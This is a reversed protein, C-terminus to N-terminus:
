IGWTSLNVDFVVGTYLLCVFLYFTATIHSRTVNEESM